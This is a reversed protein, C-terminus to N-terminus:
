TRDGLAFCCIEEGDRSHNAPPAAARNWGDAINRNREIKKAPITFMNDGAMPQKRIATFNLHDLDLSL